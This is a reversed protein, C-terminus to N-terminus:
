KLCVLSFLNGSVPAIVIAQNLLLFISQGGGCCLSHYTCEGIKKNPLKPVMAMVVTGCVLCLAPEWLETDANPPLIPSFKTVVDILQFPKATYKRYNM